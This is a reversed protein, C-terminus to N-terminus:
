GTYGRQLGGAVIYNVIYLNGSYGTASYGPGDTYQINHGQCIYRCNYQSEMALNILMSKDRADGMYDGAAVICNLGPVVAATKQATEVHIDCSLPMVVRGSFLM